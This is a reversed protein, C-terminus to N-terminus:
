QILGLRVLLYLIVAFLMSVIGIWRVVNLDKIAHGVATDKEVYDVEGITLSVIRKESGVEVYELHAEKGVMRDLLPILEGLKKNEIIGYSLRSHVEKYLVYEKGKVYVSITGLYKPEVSDLRGTVPVPKQSYQYIDYSPGTLFLLALGLLCGCVLYAQPPIKARRM